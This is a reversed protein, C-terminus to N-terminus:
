LDFLSRIADYSEIKPRRITFRLDIRRNRNRSESSDIDPLTAPDPRTSAFGSVSFLPSGEHNILEDLRYNGLNDNWYQWVTIARFTSLGWNGKLSPNNYPASDTHGEISITNLHAFRDDKSLAKYIVEGVQLANHLSQSDAPLDFRGQEFHIVSEPIRIVTHNEAIEVHIDQKSLEDVVETVIATRVRDSESAQLLADEAVQGKASIELMLAITALMFLVLLTAMIDSFSIWYPNDPDESQQPTRHRSAPIM